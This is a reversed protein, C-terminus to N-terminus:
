KCLGPTWTNEPSNNKCDNENTSFGGNIGKIICCGATQTETGPKSTTINEGNKKIYYLAAIKKTSFEKVPIRVMGDNRGPDNVSFNQGTEDVGTLVMYHAEYTITDNNRKHGVCSHCSFIIPKKNRLINVIQPIDGNPLMTCSLNPWEKKINSCMTPGKTGYCGVRAGVRVSFNATEVPSVKYGYFNLVDALSTIGCGGACISGSLSNKDFTKRGTFCGLSAGNYFGDYPTNKWKIDCQKIDPVGNAGFTSPGSYVEGNSVRENGPELELGYVYRVKLAKFNVLDPNIYYLIAYSGWMIVVGIIIQAIRKYATSKKEADGVSMVMDFGQKIIMFIAAISVAVMAFKYIAALYEAIWPITLFGGEDVADLVDGFKLSPINIELLPKTVQIDETLTTVRISFNNNNTITPSITPTTIKAGGVVEAKGGCLDSKLHDLFCIKPVTYHDGTVKLLRIKNPASNYAAQSNPDTTKSQSGSTSFYINIPGTYNNLAITKCWDSFCGDFIVTTKATYGLSLFSRIFNAGGSHGALVLSTGSLTVGYDKIKTKAENIFCDMDAKALNQTKTGNNTGQPALIVANTGASKLTAANACLNYTTCMSDPTPNDTGHFYLYINDATKLGDPIIIGVKKNYAPSSNCVSTYTYLKSGQWSKDPTAGYVLGPLVVGIALALLFYKKM